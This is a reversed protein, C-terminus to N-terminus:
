GTPRATRWRGQPLGALRRGVGGGAQQLRASRRGGGRAGAGGAGGARARPVRARDGGGRRRLRRAAGRRGAGGGADGLAGPVEFGAGPLVRGSGDDHRHRDSRRRDRDRAAAGAPEGAFRAQGRRDAAAGDPLGVGQACRPDPQAERRHHDAQGRGGRDRRSRFGDRVGRRRRRHRRLPRRRLRPLRGPAVPEPAARGPLEQGLARHHRVRRRRRVRGPAARRAADVARELERGRAAALRRRRDPGGAAARGEPRRHRGRRLRRQGPPAGAHLGGARARRGAREQRHVAARRSPHPEASELADAPQLDRLGLADRARRDARRDGGAPHQGAGAEPVRVGEHLRQLHPPRHRAADPQRRRDDGAGRDLRRGQAARADRRDERRAPLRRTKVGLPNRKVAGSKDHMGTSCSDKEREHCYLCYDAESAVERRSMRPDTLGFGDRRRRHEPPGETIGPLKADPRRLPM